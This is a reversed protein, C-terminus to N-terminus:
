TKKIRIKYGLRRRLKFVSNICRFPFVFIKKIIHNQNYIWRISNFVCEDMFYDEWVRPYHKSIYDDEEINGAKHNTSSVGDCVFTTVLIDFYRYSCNNWILSQVFYTWDSIIRYSEDYLTTRNFLDRKIFTSPHSLSSHQVSYLTIRKPPYHDITTGNEWVDHCGCSVIDEDFENEFVKELVDDAYLYDGSNLFLTYKGKAALIGKNMANYIGNDKESVWYSLGDAYKRIIDVSGDTSAGDIVIHEFDRYTQARVSGITRKLGDANNFNITIISLRM